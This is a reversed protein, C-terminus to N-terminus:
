VALRTQRRWRDWAHGVAGSGPFIDVLEDDPALGLVDFIWHCFAEPKQGTITNGLFGHPQSAVLSDRVFDRPHRQRWHPIRFIVPEWTWMVRSPPFPSGASRIWAGVRVGTGLKVGGRGNWTRKKSPESEPCLGLVYHLSPVSTSLAWGDPFDRELDRILEAHDVEQVDGEFPDGNKGYHRLAQGPYPPDAYAVRLRSAANSPADSPQM